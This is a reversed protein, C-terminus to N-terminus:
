VVSLEVVFVLEVNASEKIISEKRLGFFAILRLNRSSFIFLMVLDKKEVVVMAVDKGLRNLSIHCELRGQKLYIIGALEDYSDSKKKKKM